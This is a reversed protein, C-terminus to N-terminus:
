VSGCARMDNLIDALGDIPIEFIEAGQYDIIKVSGSGMAKFTQFTLATNGHDGLSFNVTDFDYLSSTLSISLGGASLKLNAAGSPYAWDSSHLQMFVTNLMEEYLPNKIPILSVINLSAGDNVAEVVCAGDVTLRDGDGAAFDYAETEYLRWDGRKALTNMEDAYVASM